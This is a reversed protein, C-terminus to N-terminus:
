VPRVSTFSMRATRWLSGLLQCGVLARPGGSARAAVRHRVVVWQVGTFDLEITPRWRSRDGLPEVTVAVIARIPGDIGRDAWRQPPDYETIETTVERERGGIRRITTCRSGLRADAATM